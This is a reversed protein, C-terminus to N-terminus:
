SEAEANVSTLYQDVLEQRVNVKQGVAAAIIHAINECHSLYVQREVAHRADNTPTAPKSLIM